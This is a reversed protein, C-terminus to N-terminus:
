WVMELVMSIFGILAICVASPIIGSLMGIMVLDDMKDKM